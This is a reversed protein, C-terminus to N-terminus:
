LTMRDLLTQLRDPAIPYNMETAPGTLFAHRHGCVNALAWFCGNIYNDGFLEILVAGPPAFVMNTLGAGHPAVVVAAQRFLEIQDAVSLDGPCVIEFGRQQLVQILADENLIRRHTADRRTVYLRRGPAADARPANGLFRARLWAVAHPSPNGTRSPLEPYFLKECTGVGGAFPVTRGPAIGALALSEQHFAKLRAPVLLPVTQLGPWQELVALRPLADLMWHYYYDGSWPSALLGCTAPLTQRARHRFLDFFGGQELVYDDSLASEYLIRNDRALVVFEQSVVQAQHLCALFVEPIVFQNGDQYRCVGTHFRAADAEDFSISATRQITEAPRVPLYWDEGGLEGTAPFHDTARGHDKFSILRQRPHRSAFPPLAYVGRTFQRRAQHSVVNVKRRVRQLLPMQDIM